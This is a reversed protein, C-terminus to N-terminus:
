TLRSLCPVTFLSFVDMKSFLLSLPHSLVSHSDIQTTDAAMQTDSCMVSVTLGAGVGGIDGQKRNAVLM